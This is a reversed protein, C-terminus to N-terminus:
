ASVQQGILLNNVASPTWAAGTDPDVLDTRTLYGWTNGLTTSPGQALTSGSKLQLKLARTGADSKKALVRTTVAIVSAPLASPPGLAYLDSQGNTSSAVYTNSGDQTIDAVLPANVGSTPTINLATFIILNTAANVTPPNSVPFSAYPTNVSFSGVMSNNAYYTGSQVDTCIAMYYLTGQTIPVPTPFTFTNVGSPPNSIPTATGLVTTPKPVTSSAYIAAKWNVGTPPTTVTIQASMLLGSIPAVFPMWGCVNASIATNTQLALWPAVAMSSGSPQSPTFQVSVDSGPHRVYCRVDGIWPVAVPDSRWLFDDFYTAGGGGNGQGLSVKNAYANGSLATNLGGLTFDNSVNGNKRVSFSGTTANIAIEFEFGYWVSQATIAGTYTALVTGNYLGSTLVIAGDSRFGITCQATAGDWLTITHYISTGSLAVPQLASVVVHHVADNSGSAKSLLPNQAGGYQGTIAQSGAYRGAVFIFYGNLPYLDWYLGLGVTDSASAYLDFSDGFLYV